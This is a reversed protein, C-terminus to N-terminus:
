FFQIFPPAPLNSDATSYVAAQKFPCPTEKWLYRVGHVSKSRCIIPVTLKVTIPSKVAYNAPAAIWATENSMCIQKEQCCIEFGKSNRLEISSSFTSLYTVNIRADSDRAIENVIPGQYNVDKQDYAIALGSRSLRYGVDLKTRPHIGGGDDRLDMTTAMFVNPTANNPTYGIDFTQHWRIWPFGGIIKGTKERTSLQVFGFPFIPDTIFYTRNQWIHRWYQIMKLFTCQYKDRNHNVNAEGQYWIVGKIVMRTFPYIMANYLVSNNLVIDPKFDTEDSYELEIQKDILVDCDGWSTHILGIPRKDDLGIHIMRGYLWCVASAYVSGVSKPSAISWNLAIDLLEEEPKRSQQRSATFLRVKPYKGANEIESSGNFIRQVAMAMNSQGSCLWVDGFLVDHLRISIRSGNLFTQTAVLEFPGEESEADLTVSWISEDSSHISSLYSKTHYIKKNMKLIISVNQGDGYGWVIAKQPARQLVMHNQYYNAFRFNGDVTLRTPKRGHVPRGITPKPTHYIQLIERILQLRFDVLQPREGTKM